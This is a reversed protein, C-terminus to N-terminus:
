LSYGSYQGCLKRRWYIHYALNHLLPENRESLPHLRASNSYIPLTM